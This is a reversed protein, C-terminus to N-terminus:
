VNEFRGRGERLAASLSQEAGITISAANLLCWLDSPEFQKSGDLHAAENGLLTLLNDLAFCGSNIEHCRVIAIIRPLLDLMMLPSMKSAVEPSQKDCNRVFAYAVQQWGPLKFFKKAITDFNAAAARNEQEASLEEKSPIDSARIRTLWKDFMHCMEKTLRRRNLYDNVDDRTVGQLNVPVPRPVQVHKYTIHPNGTEGIRDFEVYTFVLRVFLRESDFTAVNARHALYPDILYLTGPECAISKKPNAQLSLASFLDHRAIDHGTLDFPQSYCVTGLHTALLYNSEPPFKDIFRSGQLGDVHIGPVRQTSGAKVPRTDVTLYARMGRSKPNAAFQFAVAEELLSRLSIFEGPVILEESGSIKVIMGQASPLKTPSPFTDLSFKAIPLPPRAVLYNRLQYPESMHRVAPSEQECRKLVRPGASVKFPTAVLEPVPCPPRINKTGAIREVARLLQGYQDFSLHETIFRGLPSCSSPQPDPAWDKASLSLLQVSQVFQALAASNASNGTSGIRVMEEVDERRLFSPGHKGDTLADIVTSVHSQFENQPASLMFSANLPSYVYIECKDRVYLSLM